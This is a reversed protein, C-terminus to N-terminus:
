IEHSGKKADDTVNSVDGHGYLTLVNMYQEIYFILIKM